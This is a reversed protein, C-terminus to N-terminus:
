RRKTEDEERHARAHRSQAVEDMRTTQMRSREIAKQRSREEQLLEVTKLERFAERGADQAFEIERALRTIQDNLKHRRKRWAQFYAGWALAAEPDQHAVDREAEKEANLATNKAELETEETHLKALERRKEDLLWQRYRILGDLKAM